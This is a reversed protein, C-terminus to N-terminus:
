YRAIVQIASFKVVLSVVIQTANLFMCRERLLISGAVAVSPLFDPADIDKKRNPVASTLLM